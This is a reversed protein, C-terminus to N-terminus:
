MTCIKIFGVVFFIAEENSDTLLRLSRCSALAEIGSSLQKKERFWNLILPKQKRITKAERKLPEIKSRM